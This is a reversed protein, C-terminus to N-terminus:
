STGELEKEMIKVRRLVRAADTRKGIALLATIIAKDDLIRQKLQGCYIELTLKEAQMEIELIQKKLALSDYRDNWELTMPNTTNKLSKLKQQIAEM